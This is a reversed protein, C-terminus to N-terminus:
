QSASRGRAGFLKKIFAFIAVIGIIVFKKMAIIAVILGKLLGTKAAIGGAVLAALGYAALKDTGPKYDAYRNGENFDVMALIQPTAKEIEKLQSIGAVANLVLIGRRGLIRLNYNLTNEKDGDGFKIEKAWYFKHTQKDYRPAAAWGVLDIASYGNKVRERSAEKTAAKMQKLLKDYNITEADHDKVYGDEQYDLVVCWTEQEFPDFNPPVIVGLNKSESPPNGWIGSLLTEAGTPDLYRFGESLNITANGETLAIKGSQYNLSDKLGRLEAKRTDEETAASVFHSAALFLLTILTPAKM